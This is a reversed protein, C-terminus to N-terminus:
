MVEVHDEADENEASYERKFHETKCPICDGNLICIDFREVTEDAVNNSLNTYFDKLAADYDAYTKSSASEAATSHIKNKKVLIYM